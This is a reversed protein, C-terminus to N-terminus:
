SSFTKQINNKLRFLLIMCLSIQTWTPSFFSCGSEQPNGSLLPLLFFPFRLPSPSRLSVNAWFNENRRTGWIIEGAGWKRRPKNNKIFTNEKKAM